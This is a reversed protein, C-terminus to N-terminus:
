ETKDVTKSLWTKAKLEFLAANEPNRFPIVSMLALKYGLSSTDDDCLYYKDGKKELLKDVFYPVASLKKLYSQVCKGKKLGKIRVAALFERCIAYNNKAAAGDQVLLDYADYNVPQATIECFLPMMDLLYKKLGDKFPFLGDDDFEYSNKPAKDFILCMSFTFFDKRFSEDGECLRLNGNEDIAKGEIQEFCKNWERAPLRLDAAYADVPVREGASIRGLVANEMAYNNLDEAVFVSILTEKINNLLESNDKTQM